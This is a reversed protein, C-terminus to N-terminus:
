PRFEIGPGAGLATDIAWQVVRGQEDEAASAPTRGPSEFTQWWGVRTATLTRGRTIRDPTEAWKADALQRALDLDHTRRVLVSWWRYRPYWLLHARPPRHQVVETGDSRRVVQRPTRDTM